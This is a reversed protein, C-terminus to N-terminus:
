RELRGAVERYYEDVIFAVNEGWMLTGPKQLIRFTESALFKAYAADFSTAEKEAIMSAIKEIKFIMYTTMDNGNYVYKDKIAEM